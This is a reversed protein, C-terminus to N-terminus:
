TNTGGDSEPSDPSYIYLYFSIFHIFSILLIITSYVTTSGVAFSFSFRVLLQYVLIYRWSLVLVYLCLFAWLHCALTNALIEYRDFSSEFNVNSMTLNCRTFKIQHRNLIHGVKRIHITHLRGKSFTLWM